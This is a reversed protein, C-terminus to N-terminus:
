KIPCPQGEENITDEILAIKEQEDIELLANENALKLKVDILDNENYLTTNRGGFADSGAATTLGHYAYPVEDKVELLPIPRNTGPIKLAAREEDYWEILAKADKPSKEGLAENIFRHMPEGDYLEAMKNLVYQRMKRADNPHVGFADHVTVVWFDDQQYLASVIQGDQFHTINPPASSGLGIVDLIPAKMNIRFQIREKMKESNWDTNTMNITHRIEDDNEDKLQKFYTTELRFPAKNFRGELELYRGMHGVKKEDLAAVMQAAKIFTKRALDTGPALRVTSDIFRQTLYTALGIDIDEFGEKLRFSQVMDQGMVFAGASYFRTMVPSKALKRLQDPNNRLIDAWWKEAIVKGKGKMYGEIAKKKKKMKKDDWENDYDDKLEKMKRKYRTFEEREIPSDHEPINNITDEGVSIYLDHKMYAKRMNVASASHSDRTMLTLHQGGSITHDDWHIFNTEYETITKGDTGQSHLVMKGVESALAMFPDLDGKSKVKKLIELSEKSTPNAYVRFYTPILERGVIDRERESVLKTHEMVDGNPRTFSAGYYDPLQRITEGVGETSYARPADGISHMARIMKDRQINLYLQSDLMRFRWEFSHISFFPDKQERAALMKRDRDKLKAKKIGKLKRIEDKKEKETLDTRKKLKKITEDYEPFSLEDSNEILDRYMNRTHDDILRAMGGARNLIDKLTQNKGAKELLDFALNAVMPLGNLNSGKWVQAVKQPLKWLAKSAIKGPKRSALSLELYDLYEQNTINVTNSTNDSWWKKVNILAKDQLAHWMKFGNMYHANKEDAVDNRRWDAFKQRDTFRVGFSKDKVEVDDGVKNNPFHDKNYDTIEVIRAKEPRNLWDVPMEIAGDIRLQEIEDALSLGDENRIEELRVADVSMTLDAQGPNKSRKDMKLFGSAGTTLRLIDKGFDFFNESMIRNKKYKDDLVIGMEQMAAFSDLLKDSPQNFRAELENWENGDFRDGIKNKLEFYSARGVRTVVTSGKEGIINYDKYTDGKLSQVQVLLIEEPTLFKKVVRPWGKTGLKKKEDTILAIAKDYYEDAKTLEEIKKKEDAEKQESTRGKDSIDKINELGGISEVAENSLEQFTSTTIIVERKSALYDLEIRSDLGPKGYLTDMKKEIGEIELKTLDDYTLDKILKDKTEESINENANVYKKIGELVRRAQVPELNKKAFNSVGEISDGANEAIYKAVSSKGPNNVLDIIADAIKTHSTELATATEIEKELKAIRRKAVATKKGLYEKDELEKIRKKLARKKKGIEAKEKKTFTALPKFAEQRNKETKRKFEGKPSKRPKAVPAELEEVIVKSEQVSDDKAKTPKGGIKELVKKSAAKPTTKKIPKREDAIRQERQENLKNEQETLKEQAKEIKTINTNVKKLRDDYFKAERKITSEPKKKKKLYKIVNSKADELYKRKSELKVQINDILSSEAIDVNNLANQETLTLDQSVLNDIDELLAQKETLLRTLENEKTTDNLVSDNNIYDIQTNINRIVADVELIRQATIGGAAKITKGILEAEFVTDDIIENFRNNLITKAKKSLKKKSKKEKEFETIIEQLEANNKEFRKKQEPTSFRNLTKASLVGGGGLVLGFLAGSLAAEPIGEGLSKKEGGITVDLFNQTLQTYTESLSERASSKLGISLASGYKSAVTKYGDKLIDASKILKRVDKITDLIHLSGYREFIAEATGHGLIVLAKQFRSIKTYNKLSGIEQLTNNYEPSGVEMNSLSEELEEIEGNKVRDELVEYDLSKSGAGSAFFLPLAAPGTFMAMIYPSQGVFMEGAWEGFDGVSDFATDLSQPIELYESKWEENARAADTIVQQMEAFKPANFSPSVDLTEPAGLPGPVVAIEESGTDIGALSYFTKWAADSGRDASEVVDLGFQAIFLGFDILAGKGKDALSYSRKFLNLAQKDNISKKHAEYYDSFDRRFDKALLRRQERLKATDKGEDEFLKIQDDVGQIASLGADIKTNFAGMIGENAIVAKDLEGKVEIRTEKDLRDLYDSGKINYMDEYAKATEPGEDSVELDIGAEYNLVDQYDAGTLLRKQAESDYVTESLRKIREVKRSLALEHTENIDSDTFTTEIDFGRKADQAKYSLTNEAIKNKDAIYSSVVQKIEDESYSESEMRQVVGALEDKQIDDLEEM